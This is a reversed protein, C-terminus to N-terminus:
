FHVLSVQLKLFFNVCENQFHPVAETKYGALLPDTDGGLVAIQVQKKVM